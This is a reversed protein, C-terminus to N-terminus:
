LYGAPIARIGKQLFLLELYHNILAGDGLKLDGAKTAQELLRFEQIMNKKPNATM